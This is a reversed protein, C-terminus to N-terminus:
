CGVPATIQGQMIPAQSMALSVPTGARVWEIKGSPLGTLRLSATAEGSGVYTWPGSSAPAAQLVTSGGHTFSPPWAFTATWGKTPAPCSWSVDLAAPTMTSSPAGSVTRPVPIHVHRVLSPLIMLCVLAAAIAALAGALQGVQTARRMTRTWPMPRRAPPRSRPNSSPVWGRERVPSRHRPPVLLPPLPKPQVLGSHSGTRSHLGRDLATAIAAMHEPQLCPPYSALHQVLDEVSVATVDSAELVPKAPRLGTLSITARVAVPWTPLATRLAIKVTEAEFMLTDLERRKPYKGVWLTGKGDSIRAGTWNKSDVVFVGASTVVVHDINAGSGEVALDHFVYWGDGSRPNLVGATLQEGRAGQEYRRAKAELNEIQRRIRRSEEEASRGAWNQGTM